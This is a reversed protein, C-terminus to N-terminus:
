CRCRLGRRVRCGAPKLGGCSRTLGSPSSSAAGIWLLLQGVNMIIFYALLALGVGVSAMFGFHIPHQRMSRPYAGGFKLREDTLQVSPDVAVPAPELEPPFEFRRRPQAGPFRRAHSLLASLSRRSPEPGGAAPAGAAAPV